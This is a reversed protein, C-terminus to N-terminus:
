DNRQNDKKERKPGSKGISWLSSSMFLFLHQFKRKRRRFSELLELFFSKRKEENREKEVKEGNKLDGLVRNYPRTHWCFFLFCVVM